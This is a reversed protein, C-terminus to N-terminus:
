TESPRQRQLCNIERMSTLKQARKKTKNIHAERLLSILSDKEVGGWELFYVSPGPVNISCQVRWDIVPLFLRITLILWIELFCQINCLSPWEDSRIIM